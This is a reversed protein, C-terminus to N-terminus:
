PEATIADLSSEEVIAGASDTHQIRIIGFGKAFWLTSPGDEGSEAAVTKIRCTDAFTRGGLTLSEFGEFTWTEQRAETETQGAQGGSLASITDTYALVASQGTQMNLPLMLAESHLTKTQAAGNEDYDLRGWFRIGQAEQSWYTAASRMDTADTLEVSASREAGEFIEKLMRVGDSTGGADPDTMTYAVGATVDFCAAFTSAAPGAPTTAADDGGGCAALAACSSAALLFTKTRSLRMLFHDYRSRTPDTGVPCTGPRGPQLRWHM